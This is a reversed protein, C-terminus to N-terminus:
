IVLCSLSANNNNMRVSEENNIDDKDIIRSDNPNNLFKEIIEINM